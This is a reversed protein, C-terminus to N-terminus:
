IFCDPVCWFVLMIHVLGFVAFCHSLVILTASVTALCLRIM